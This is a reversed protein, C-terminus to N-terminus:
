KKSWGTCVPVVWKTTLESIWNNPSMNAALSSCLSVEGTRNNIKWASGGDGSISFKPTILSFGGIIAGAILIAGLLVAQPTTM